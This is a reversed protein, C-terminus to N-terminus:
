QIRQRKTPTTSIPTLISATRATISSTLTAMKQQLIFKIAEMVDACFFKAPYVKDNDALKHMGTQVLISYWPAGAENAGKIDSSPNDGIAYIRQLVGKGGMQQYQKQLLQSAYSYTSSYPKGYMEVDLTLGTAEEFRSKLCLFFSGVTFRPVKWTGPYMLDPNAIFLKTFQGNGGETLPKWDDSGPRGDCSRLIDIMIQIAEGWNSPEALVCIIDIQDPQSCYQLKSKKTEDSKKNKEEEKQKPFKSLYLFPSRRSYESLTMTTELTFGYSKAVNLISQDNLGALLISKNKFDSVLERLPTHSVIIRNEQVPIQLAKSISKAKEQEPYGGGNTIFLHPIRDMCIENKPLLQLADRACPIPTKDRLLVGDVDFVIAYPSVPSQLPFKM